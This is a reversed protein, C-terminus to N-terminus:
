EKSLINKIDAMAWPMTHWGLYKIKAKTTPFSSLSTTEGTFSDFRAQVKPEPIRWRPNNIFNELCSTLGSHVSTLRLDEGCLSLMKSNDFTRDFLRDYKTQYENDITKIIKDSTMPQWLKPRNGTKRELVSCYIDKVEQWTISETGTLHVAQTMALPNGPLRAMAEAVDAGYTLTTRHSAVDQPFPISQGHLARWLWIDKELTGLQLRDTNYTIYPRIITWNTQKSEFLMNEERAKALAYEDTSLYAADQCVDLLRPSDENLPTESDAYVRSSSLFLYHGTKSLLSEVRARFESPQYVMFDIIADFKGMELMEQLFVADHANGQVFYLNSIESTRVIRTTVYVENGRTALKRALPTGMAGTGGLLLIKM